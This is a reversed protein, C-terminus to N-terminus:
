LIEYRPLRVEEFGVAGEAFTVCEEDSTTHPGDLEFYQFGIWSFVTDNSWIGDDM